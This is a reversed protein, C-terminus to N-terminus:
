YLKKNLETAAINIMEIDKLGYFEDLYTTINNRSAYAVLLAAGRISENTNKAWRDRTVRIRKFNNDVAFQIFANINKLDDNVGPMVLYKLVIQMQPNASAQVYKKINDKIQLFNDTGKIKHWTKATGADISFLIYSDPNSKLNDGIRESYLFCNTLWGASDSGVADYIRDRFPHVTIEGSAIDWCLNQAFIGQSKFYEIHKFVLEHGAGDREKDFKRRNELNQSCYICKAQCPSPNVGFCIFRIKSDEGKPWGEAECFKSCRSCAGHYPNDSPGGTAAIRMSENIIENKREIYNELTQAPDDCLDVCIKSAEDACCFSLVNTGVDLNGNFIMYNDELSRCSKYKM